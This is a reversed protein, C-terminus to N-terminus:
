APQSPGEVTAEPMRGPRPTEGAPLAVYGGPKGYRAAHALASKHTPFKAGLQEYQHGRPSRYWLHCPGDPPAPPAETPATRTITQM